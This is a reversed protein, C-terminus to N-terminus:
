KDGGNKIMGKGDIYIERPPRHSIFDKLSMTFGYAGANRVGILDGITVHPLCIDGALVDIPTCLNGVVSVVEGREEKGPVYVPHPLDLFIPRFFGNMGGHVVLFKKGRSEKIDVVRTLYTGAQAVLFRGSEVVLRVRNRKIIPQEAVLQQLSPKLRSWDIPQEDQTYPVGFGGGFDIFGINFGIEEVCYTALDLIKQINQYIVRYDLIQSGIYVHIGTVQVNKLGSLFARHSPLSEEDVGFKSANGGMIELAQDGKISYKPNIRLGVRALRGQKRCWADMMELEHYSDAIIVARDITRAIDAETKGPSSYFVREPAFGTQQALLVENASATDAGLGQRGLYKVIERYPNAKLSYFIEFDPLNERLIQWQREIVTEDYVYLPFGFRDALELENHTKQPQRM